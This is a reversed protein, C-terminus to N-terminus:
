TPSRTLLQVLYRDDKAVMGAIHPGFSVSSRAVIKKGDALQVCVSEGGKIVKDSAVVADDFGAGGSATRGAFEARKIWRV